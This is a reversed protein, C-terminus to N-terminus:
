LRQRPLLLNGASQFSSSGSSNERDALLGFLEVASFFKVANPWPRGLARLKGASVLARYRGDHLEPFVGRSRVACRQVGGLKGSWEPLWTEDSRLIFHHSWLPTPKEALAFASIPSRPASLPSRLAPWHRIGRVERALAWHFLGHSKVPWPFSFYKVVSRVRCPRLWGARAPTRSIQQM